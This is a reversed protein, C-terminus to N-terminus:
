HDVEPHRSSAVNLSNDLFQSLYEDLKHKDDDETEPSESATILEQEKEAAQDFQFTPFDTQNGSDNSQKPNEKKHNKYTIDAKLTKYQIRIKEVTQKMKELEEKLTKNEQNIKGLMEKYSNREEKLKRALPKYRSKENTMNKEAERFSELKAELESIRDTMERAKKQYNLIVAKLEEEDVLNRQGTEVSAKIRKNESKLFDNEDQLSKIMESLAAMKTLLERNIISEDLGNKLTLYASNPDSKTVNKTDQDKKLNGNSTKEGTANGKLPYELLSISRTRTDGRKQKGVASERRRNRVKEIQLDHRATNLARKLELIEEAM